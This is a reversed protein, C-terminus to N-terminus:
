IGRKDLLNLQYSRIRKVPSYSRKSSALEPIGMDSEKNIYEVGEFLRRACEQDLFQYLGRIHADAKEINLIRL